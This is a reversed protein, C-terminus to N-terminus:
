IKMGSCCLHTYPIWLLWSWMSSPSLTFPSLPHSFPSPPLFSLTSSHFSTPFFHPLCSIFGFPFFSSFPSLLWPLSFSSTSHSFVVVQGEGWLNLSTYHKRFYTIEGDNNKINCICCMKRNLKKHDFNLSIKINKQLQVVGFRLNIHNQRYICRKQIYTITRWLTFLKFPILKPTVNLM